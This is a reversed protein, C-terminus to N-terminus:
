AAEKDANDQGLLKLCNRYESSFAQLQSDLQQRFARVESSSEELAQLRREMDAAEFLHAQSRLVETLIQAEGPTIKGEGVAALICQLNAALELANKAPPLELEISREKRIPIVRELCLRLAHTNGKKAMTIAQRILQESEGELLQEALLTAQNRSGIPRGSPNGSTGKRFLGEKTRNAPKKNM